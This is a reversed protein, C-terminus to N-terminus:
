ISSYLRLTIATIDGSQPLVAVHQAAPSSLLDPSTRHMTLYKNQLIDSCIGNAYNRHRSYTKHTIYQSKNMMHLAIIIQLTDGYGM